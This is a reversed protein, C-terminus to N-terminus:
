AYFEYITILKRKISCVKYNGFFVAIGTAILLLFFLVIILAIILGLAIGKKKAATVNVANNPTQEAIRNNDTNEAMTQDGKTLILIFM